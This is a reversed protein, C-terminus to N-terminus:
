LVLLNARDEEAEKHRQQSAVLVVDGDNAEMGAGGEVEVLYIVVM